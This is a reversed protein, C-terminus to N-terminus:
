GKILLNTYGGEILKQSLTADGDVFVQCENGEIYAVYRKGPYIWRYIEKLALDASAKEYSDGSRLDHCKTGYIHLKRNLLCVDLCYINAYFWRTDHIKVIEIEYYGISGRKKLFEDM